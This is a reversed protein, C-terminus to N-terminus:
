KKNFYNELTYWLSYYSLFYISILLTEWVKDMYDVVPYEPVFFWVFLCWLTLRITSKIM